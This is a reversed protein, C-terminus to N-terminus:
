GNKQVTEGVRAANNGPAFSHYDRRRWFNKIGFVGVAVTFGIHALHEKGSERAPIRLMQCVTEIIPQVAPNVPCVAVAAASNATFDIRRQFGYLKRPLVETEPGVFAPELGDFALRLIS